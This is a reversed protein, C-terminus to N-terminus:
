NVSPAQLSHLLMYSRLFALLHSSAMFYSHFDNIELLVRSSALNGELFFYVECCISSILFKFICKDFCNSMFSKSGAFFIRSICIVLSLYFPAKCNDWASYMLRAKCLNLMPLALFMQCINLPYDGWVFFSLSSMSLVRYKLWQFDTLLNIDFGLLDWQSAILHFPEIPFFNPKHGLHMGKAVQVHSRTRSDGWTELNKLTSPLPQTNSLKDALIDEIYPRGQGVVKTTM